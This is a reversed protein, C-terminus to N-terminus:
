SSTTTEQTAETPVPEGGAHLASDIPQHCEACNNNRDLEGIPHVILEFDVERLHEFRAPPILTHDALRITLFFALVMREATDLDDLSDLKLAVRAWKRDALTFGGLVGQITDPIAFEKGEYRFRM